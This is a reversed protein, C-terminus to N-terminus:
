SSGVYLKCLNWQPVPAAAHMIRVQMLTGAAVSGRGARERQGREPPAGASSHLTSLRHAFAHKMRERARFSECKLM